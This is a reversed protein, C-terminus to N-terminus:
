HKYQAHTRASTRISEQDLCKTKNKGSRVLKGNTAVYAASWSQYTAVYTIQSIVFAQILRMINAERMGNHKNTIRKILRM